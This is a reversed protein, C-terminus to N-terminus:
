LNQALIIKNKVFQAYALKLITFAENSEPSDDNKDPHTSITTKKYKKAIEKLTPSKTHDLGLVLYHYAIEHKPISLIFDNSFIAFNKKFIFTM